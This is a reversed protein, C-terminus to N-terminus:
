QGGRKIRVALDYVRARPVGLAQAVERSADRVSGHALSEELRALIEDDAVDTPQPPGVLVVLEGRREIESASEALSGLPARRVEEHLKTLERAVVAERETGLVEAMDVLADALRSPAEFFVLTAPVNALEALRTRRASQKAPLFGAFLFRDTPLGSCSLAAIVASPGPISVVRHGASAAERVLKFGPDSILPTGADSILAVSHGDTLEGLIRPLEREENHEHYPRLSRSIGYQALLQRSHRTDECYVVDVRALVSIARLTFDTLNGIPTAVLYLGPGLPQELGDQLRALVQRRLAETNFPEAQGKCIQRNKAM